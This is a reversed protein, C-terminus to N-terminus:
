WGGEVKRPMVDIFRAVFGAKYKHINIEHIKEIKNVKTKTIYKFINKKNVEKKYDRYLTFTEIDDYTLGILEKDTKGDWVDGTPQRTLIEKPLNLKEAVKYVESKHIDAIPLLDVMADSAKGFYGIYAGEDRNITGVVISKEGKDQLSAAMQYLVPVRLISAMQGQNWHSLKNYNKQTENVIAKCAKSIDIKVYQVGSNEEKVKTAYDSAIRTAKQQGSTGPCYIPISVGLVTKIPSNIQKKAEVLLAFVLSSDVGGSLGVVASTLKEDTFFRNILTIKSKLYTDPCFKRNKRLSKLGTKM